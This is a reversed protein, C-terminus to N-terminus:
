LLSVFPSYRVSMCVHTCTGTAATNLALTQPRESAPIAPEIGTLPMSTQRKHTNQTTLYFDRRRTSWEELPTRDLITHRLLITFGQCVVFWRLLFVCIFVVIIQIGIASCTAFLPFCLCYCCFPVLSSCNVFHFLFKYSFLLKIVVLWTNTLFHSVLSSTLIHTLVNRMLLGAHSKPIQFWYSYNKDNDNTSNNYDNGWLCIQVTHWEICVTGAFAFLSLGRTACSLYCVSVASAASPSHEERM